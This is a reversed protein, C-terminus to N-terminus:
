RYEEWHFDANRPTTARRAVLAATFLLPLLVALALWIWRHARRLPQIM